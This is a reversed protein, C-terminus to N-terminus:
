AFENDDNDYNPNIFQAWFRVDSDKLYLPKETGGEYDRFFESNM